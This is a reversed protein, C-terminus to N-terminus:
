GLWGNLQHIRETILQPDGSCKKGLVKIEKLLNAKLNQPLDKATQVADDLRNRIEDNLGPGCGKIFNVLKETNTGGIFSALVEQEDRTLRNDAVVLSAASWIRVKELTQERFTELANGSAESLEKEIRKNMKERSLPATEKRESWDYYPQSMSFLVLAKLRLSFRPHTSYIEQHDGDISKLDRLQSLYEDLNFRIHRESLGSASKLIAKGATQLDDVCLFGTRDVSIEAARSLQLRNLHEHRTSVEKETPHSSHQFIYHGVEHGMVFCLEQPTLLEVLGSSMSVIFEFSESITICAAQAATDPVVYAEIPNPLGLTEETRVLACHIDPFIRETIRVGASLLSRRAEENPERQIRNFGYIDPSDSDFRITDHIKQFAQM